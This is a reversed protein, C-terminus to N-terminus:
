LYVDEAIKKEAIKKLNQVLKELEKFTTHASPAVRVTGHPLTGAHRHAAPACHLGARVAIGEEDLLGAVKESPYPYLNFSLLPVTKGYFPRPAYLKCRPVTALRDYLWAVKQLETRCTMETNRASAEDLAASLGCIGPTNLTGCELREPLEDPPTPQLSQAGSGGVLLPEPTYREGCLLLGTGAPGGLGKHGPMCLLDINMRRMDIPLVGATQAADVLFILGYERALRGLRAVPLVNGFVNSAHLCAIAVTRRDILRRFNEVTEEDTRGVRAVAFCGAEAAYLPRMMSNHEMDSVIVRGGRSVLSKLAINLSMTCSNTFVVRSPNPLGFYAAAKERCRYVAEAAAISMRHGGRGPNGGFEWLANILAESVAASKPWATAANDLYIM